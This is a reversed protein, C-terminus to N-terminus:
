EPFSAFNPAQAGNIVVSSNITYNKQLKKVNYIVLTLNDIIILINIM